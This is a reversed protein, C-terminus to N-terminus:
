CNFLNQMALKVNSKIKAFLSSQISNAPSGSGQIHLIGSIRFEQSNITVMDKDFVFSVRYDTNRFVDNPFDVWENCSEYKFMRLM